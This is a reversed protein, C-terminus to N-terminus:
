YPADKRNSAYFVEVTVKDNLVRWVAVHRYDLHCHHAGDSLKSYNPWNGRVPGFLQLERVLATLSDRVPHSLRGAQKAAKKTFVVTWRGSM